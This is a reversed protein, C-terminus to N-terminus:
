NNDLHKCLCALGVFLSQIFYTLTSTNECNKLDWRMYMFNEINLILLGLGFRVLYIVLFYFATQTAINPIRPVLQLSRWNISLKTVCSTVDKVHAVKATAVKVKDNVVPSGPQTTACGTLNDFRQKLKARLEARKSNMTKQNAKFQRIEEETIVNEEEGSSCYAQLM